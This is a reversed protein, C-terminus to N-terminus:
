NCVEKYKTVPRYATVDRSRQVEKYKTVDECEVKTPEKTIQYSAMYNQNAEGSPSDDTLRITATFTESDQPYLQRTITEERIENGSNADIFIIKVQWTGREEKDLNNM